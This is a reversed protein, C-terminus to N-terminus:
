AFDCVGLDIASLSRSYTFYLVNYRIELVEASRSDAPTKQKM